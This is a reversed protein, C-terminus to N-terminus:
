ERREGGLCDLCYRSKINIDRNDELSVATANIGIEWHAIGIHVAYADGGEMGRCRCGLGKRVADPVSPKAMGPQPLFAQNKNRDM